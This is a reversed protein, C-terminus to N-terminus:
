FFAEGKERSGSVSIATNKLLFSNLILVGDANFALSWQGAM